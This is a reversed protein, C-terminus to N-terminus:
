PTQSPLASLPLRAEGVGFQGSTQRTSIKRVLDAVDGHGAFFLRVQDGELLAFPSRIESKTWPLSERVLLAASDQAFRLGDASVAHHLATQFWQPNADKQFRAVTYFLHLRDEVVLPAPTTYGVFGASAPYLESQSLVQRPATFTKGDESTILGITQLQPPNGGPRAGVAAFYIHLRNEFVAVGPEAVLYSHWDTAKGTAQLIPRGGNTMKWSRGDASTAHGIAMPSAAGAPYVGTFFLHYGGKFKVVSPTEISAFPTGAPELLPTAPDLKWTKGQDDSVARYPVVPPKFLEDRNSSLYAVLKGNESLLCPDNWTGVTKLAGAPIVPSASPPTSWGSFVPVGTPTPQTQRAVEDCGVLLCALAIAALTLPFAIRSVMYLSPLSPAAFCLFQKAVCLVFM